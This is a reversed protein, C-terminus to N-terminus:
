LPRLRKDAYEEWSLFGPDGALRFPLHGHMRQSERDGCDRESHGEKDGQHPVLYFLSLPLTKLDYTVFMGINKDDVSLCVLGVPERDAIIAVERM